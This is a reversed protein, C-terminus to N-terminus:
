HRLSEEGVDDAQMANWLRQDRVAVRDERRCEPPLEHAQHAGLEVHGSCEVRLRIALCLRRVPDDDHVKAAECSITRALPEPPQRPCLVDVVGGVLGRQLLRWELHNVPTIRGGDARVFWALRSNCRHGLVHRVPVLEQGVHAVTQLLSLRHLLRVIVLGM